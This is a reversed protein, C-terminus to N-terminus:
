GRVALIWPNGEYTTGWGVVTAIEESLKVKKRPLCIPYLYHNFTITENLKILGIDYDYTELDFREHPLLRQVAVDKEFILNLKKQFITVQLWEM